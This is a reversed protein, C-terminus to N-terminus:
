VALKQFICERNLKVKRDVEYYLNGRHSDVAVVLPGFAKVELLWMAEPMGLDLWEVDRVCRIADAGLIAAGGTFACYVAGFEAMTNTTRQGMGGKGIIIRPKFSKIFEDEYPELRTSTTPGAAVAVWAGDSKKRMVPGCHYIVKGALDFPLKKGKRRFELARIHAEDRATVMVGTVYLIDNVKLRRIDEESIPTHLKYTSML